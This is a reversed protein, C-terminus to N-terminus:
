PANSANKPRAPALMQRSRSVGPNQLGGSLTVWLIEDAAYCCGLNAFAKVEKAVRVLLVFTELEVM